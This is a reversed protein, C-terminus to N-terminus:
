YHRFMVPFYSKLQLAEITGVQGASLPDSVVLPHQPRPKVTPARPAEIMEPAHGTLVLQYESDGVAEVEVLYRGSEPLFRHGLDETQWPLVTDNRYADPRFANRPGWAYLDPDGDVTTLLGALWTGEELDGRYQVRQGDALIQNGDLRNVFIMNTEDLTSINYAQDAVWAGLYEQVVGLDVQWWANVTNGTHSVSGAAWNGDVNGDVARGAPGATTYESAQSATLSPTRQALNIGVPVWSDAYMTIADTYWWDLPFPAEGSIVPVCVDMDGYTAEHYVYCDYDTKIIDLGADSAEGYYQFAPRTSFKSGEVTNTTSSREVSYAKEWGYTFSPGIEYIKMDLSVEGGITTTSGTASGEGTGVDRGFTAVAETYNEGWNCHPSLPNTWDCGTDPGHPPAHIVAMIHAGAKAYCAGTYTAYKSDGNTDGM